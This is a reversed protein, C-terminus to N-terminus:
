RGSPRPRRVGNVRERGESVAQGLDTLKAVTLHMVTELTVLRQDELWALRDCIETETMTIAQYTELAKQLLQHNATYGPDDALTQLIQLHADERRMQELSKAM